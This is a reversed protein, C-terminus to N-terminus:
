KAVKSREDAASELGAIRTRCAALHARESALDARLSACLDLAAGLLERVASPAAEDLLADLVDLRHRDHAACATAISAPITAPIPATM